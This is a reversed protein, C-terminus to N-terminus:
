RTSKRDIGWFALECVKKGKVEISIAPINPRNPGFPKSVSVQKEGVTYTPVPYVIPKEYKQEANLWTSHTIQKLESGPMGNGNESGTVTLMASIGILSFVSKLMALNEKKDITKNGSVVPKRGYEMFIKWRGNKRM